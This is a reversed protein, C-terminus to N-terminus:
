RRQRSTQPLFFGTGLMSRVILNKVAENNLDSCYDSLCDQATGWIEIRQSARDQAIINGDLDYSKRLEKDLGLLKLTNRALVQNIRSVDKAPIITGDAM